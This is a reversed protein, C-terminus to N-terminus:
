PFCEVTKTGGGLMPYVLSIKSANGSWTGVNFSSGQDFKHDCRLATLTRTNVCRAGQTQWSDTISNCTWNRDCVACAGGTGGSAGSSSSSGSAGSSGSSSSSSGSSGSAGSSSSSGGSSGSAGSSGSSGSSGSAGGSSSSGGGDASGGGDPPHDFGTDDGPLLASPPSEEPVGTASSGQAGSGLACAAIGLASAALASGIALSRV